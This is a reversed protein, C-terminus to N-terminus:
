SSGRSRPKNEAMKKKADKIEKLEERLKFVETMAIRERETMPLMHEMEWEMAKISNPNNGLSSM